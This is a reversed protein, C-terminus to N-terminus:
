VPMKCAPDPAPLAQASPVTTQIVPRLKGGQEAVIGFYNPGELQHDEKRMVQKGLITDFSMGSMIKALDAPKDSKAAKIAQVLVQMGIYTEGEFNTPETGPYAKRWADVFAKNEPTGLTSSYNVIGYIGRSTDGLTAVTSDTVFSVGAMTVNALLGFQKAQQAFNLADRGALAVWVGNAGADKIKQIYPAFDNAGAPAYNDSVIKKGLGQAAKTFSEGSNRGWAIDNAMIAWKDEKRSALWPRVAAADAADPRNVRFVRAQCTDGTLKDTKNITSIYIADWREVMPAIALGEGSAILGLLIKNGSLALKEAQKRAVEPKGESDQYEIALKRGLVGGQANTENAAFTVARKVQNGLDAWPGSLSTPVGVRIDQAFASAQGLMTIAACAALPLLRKLILQKIKM